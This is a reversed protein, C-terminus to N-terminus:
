ILSLYYIELEGFIIGQKERTEPKTNLPEYHYLVAVTQGGTKENVLIMSELM